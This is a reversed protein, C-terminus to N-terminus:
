GMLNNCEDYLEQLSGYDAREYNMKIVDKRTAYYEVRSSFTSNLYIKEDFYIQM